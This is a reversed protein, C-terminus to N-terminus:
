RWFYWLNWWRRVRVFQPNLGAIPLPGSTPIRATNRPGVSTPIANSPLDIEVFAGEMAAGTEAAPGGPGPKPSGFPQIEVDVGSPEGRSPNIARDHQIGNLGESDTHHRARPAGSGPSGGGTAM